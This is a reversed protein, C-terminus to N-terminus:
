LPTASLGQIARDHLLDGDANRRACGIKSRAEVTEPDREAKIILHRDRTAAAAGEGGHGTGRGGGKEFSGIQLGKRKGEGDGAIDRLGPAQAAADGQAEANEVPQVFQRAPRQLAAFNKFDARSEFTMGIVRSGPTVATEVHDAAELALHEGDGSLQMEDQQDRIEFDGRVVRPPKKRGADITQLRDFIGSVGAGDGCGESRPFILGQAAGKGIMEM